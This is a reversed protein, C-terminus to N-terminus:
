NMRISARRQQICGQSLLFPQCINSNCTGQEPEWRLIIPDKSLGARRALAFEHSEPIPSDKRQGSAAFVPHGPRYSQEAAENLYPTPRESLQPPKGEIPLYNASSSGNRKSELDFLAAVSKRRQRQAIIVWGVLVFLVVVAAVGGAIAASDSPRSLSSSYSTRSHM